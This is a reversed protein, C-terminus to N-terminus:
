CWLTSEKMPACMGNVLQATCNGGKKFLRPQLLDRGGLLKYPQTVGANAKYFNCNRM